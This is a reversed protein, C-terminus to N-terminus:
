FFNFFLTFLNRFKSTKSFKTVKYMCFFFMGFFLRLEQSKYLQGKAAKLKKHDQVGLAVGLLDAVWVGPLPRIDVADLGFNPFKM